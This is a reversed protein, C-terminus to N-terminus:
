MNKWLWMIGMAMLVFPMAACAIAVLATAGLAVIMAILSLVVVLTDWNWKKFMTLM